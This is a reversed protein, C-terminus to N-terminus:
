TTLSSNSQNKKLREVNRTTDKTSPNTGHYTRLITHCYQLIRHPKRKKCQLMDQKSHFTQSRQPQKHQLKTRFTKTRKSSKQHNNTRLRKNEDLADYKPHKTKRYRPPRQNGTSTTKLTRSRNKPENKM